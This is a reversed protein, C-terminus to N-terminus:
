QNIKKIEHLSNFKKLHLEDYTSDNETSRYTKQAYLGEGKDINILLESNHSSLSENDDIGLRQKM